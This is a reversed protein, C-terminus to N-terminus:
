VRPQVKLVTQTAHRVGGLALIARKPTDVLRPYSCTRGLVPREGLPIFGRQSAYYPQFDAVMYIARVFNTDDVDVM